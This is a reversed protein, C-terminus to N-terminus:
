PLTFNYNILGIVKVPAGSLKTPSFRAHKAAEVAADRLPGPGSTAQASIVKGNEDVTVPTSDALPKNTSKEPPKEAGKGSDQPSQTEYQPSTQVQRKRGSQASSPSSMVWVFGAVLLIVAFCRALLNSKM